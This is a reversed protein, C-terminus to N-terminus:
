SFVDFVKFFDKEYLIALAALYRDSLYITNNEIYYPGASVRDLSALFTSNSENAFEFDVFEYLSHEKCMEFGLASLRLGAGSRYNKLVSM